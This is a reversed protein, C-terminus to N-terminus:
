GIQSAEVEAAHFELRSGLQGIIAHPLGAERLVSPWVTPLSPIEVLRM